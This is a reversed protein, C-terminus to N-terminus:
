AVSSDIFTNILEDELRIGKKDLFFFSKQRCLHGKRLFTLSSDPSNKLVVTYEEEHPVIDHHCDNCNAPCFRSKM